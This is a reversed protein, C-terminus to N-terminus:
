RPTEFGTAIYEGASSWVFGAATIRAAFNLGHTFQGSSVMADTWKQASRDLMRHASLAPLHRSTRQRNILCVVADRMEARSASTASTGAGKCGHHAAAHRVNKAVAGAPTVLLVAGAALAPLVVHLRRRCQSPM